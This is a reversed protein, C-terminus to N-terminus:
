ANRAGCGCGGGTGAGCSGSSAAPQPVATVEAPANPNTEDIVTFTGHFMNMSCAMAITGTKTPTFEIVNDGPKVYKRVGFDQIVIDQACGKVTELDVTMRVPIGKKLVLPDTVYQYNKMYLKVEQVQGNGSAVTNGATVVANGLTNTNQTTTYAQAKNINLLSLVVLAVIVLAAGGIIYYKTKM